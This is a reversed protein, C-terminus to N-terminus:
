KFTVGESLKSEHHRKNVSVVFYKGPLDVKCEKSTTITVMEAKAKPAAYDKPNVRYVAFRVDSEKSDWTLQNKVINLNSPTTPRKLIERGNFPILAPKEYAESVIALAKKMDPSFKEITFNKASYFSGGKFKPKSNVKDMQYKLNSAPFDKDGVRYIGYAIMLTTNHSIREWTPLWRDFHVQSYYLQPMIVDLWGEKCWKEADAYLAKTNDYNGQPSITLTIEPKKTVILQHLSKVMENVNEFRFSEKSQGAKGYKKFDEDDKITVGGPYFYDDLAVGDVDYNSIIEDVIDKIRERVGPHAPNYVRIKPYDVYMDESIDLDIKPFIANEGKSDIRYPNIWAHFELGLKHAEEVMFQMVDYGPDKGREGTIFKSWPEYESKYFADAMSRVQVFVANINYKKFEKLDEIYAKKQREASYVNNPWDLGWATTYWVARLDRKPAIVEQTSTGPEEGPVEPKTPDGNDKSCSAIFVMLFVAVILKINKM